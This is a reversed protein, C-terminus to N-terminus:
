RKRKKKSLGAKLEDWEIWALMIGAMVVFAPIAGVLVSVFEDLAFGSQIGSVTIGMPILAYLGTAILAIGALIKAVTGYCM